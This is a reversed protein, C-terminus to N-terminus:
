SPLTMLEATKVASGCGNALEAAAATGSADAVPTYRVYAWLYFIGIALLVLPVPRALVLTQLQSSFGTAPVELHATQIALLQVPLDDTLVIGAGTVLLALWRIRGGRFWLGAFAPFVLLLLRTDHLRHYIPLMSLAAVSALALWAGEQSFRKRLTAVGWVLFLPACLAYTAASYFGPQDRFISFVTQLSIQIAGHFRPDVGAPGPDGLGGRLSFTQMNTHLEANWHPAIHTVWLVVPLCLVATVALTQLARKRTRADALLFYLLALGAVHPKVALSLAFCLIGAPVFREKIFCWVAIVCLSTAICAANGIELTIESGILFLCILGGSLIPAKEAGVNWMLWAALIFSAATLTMWLIHAPSWPLMAFPVSLIFATPVNIYLTVVHLFSDPASPHDSREAQYVRLLEAEQYPDSHQLLCRAGYYLEKFDAMSARSSSEWASGLLVFVVCGFLFLLLGGRRAETMGKVTEKTM